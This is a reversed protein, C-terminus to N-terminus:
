ERSGAALVKPYHDCVVQHSLVPLMLLVTTTSIDEVNPTLLSFIAEQRRRVFFFQRLLPKQFCSANGEGAKSSANETRPQTEMMGLQEKKTTVISEKWKVLFILLPFYSLKKRREEM